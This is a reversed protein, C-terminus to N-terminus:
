TQEPGSAAEAELVMAWPSVRGARAQMSKYALKTYHLRRLFEGRRAAEAEDITEGKAAAEKRAQEAFSAIFTARAKATIATGGYRSHTTLAGLRGRYVAEPDPTSM